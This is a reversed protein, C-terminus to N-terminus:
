DVDDDVSHRPALVTSLRQMMPRLYRRDFIIRGLPEFPRLWWPFRVRGGITVSTGEDTERLLYEGGMEKILLTSTLGKWILRKPPDYSVVETVVPGQPVGLISVVTEYRTGVGSPGDSVKELTMWPPRRWEAFTEMDDDLYAFVEGIARNIIISEEITFPM